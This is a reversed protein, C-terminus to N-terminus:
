RRIPARDICGPCGDSICVKIIVWGPFVSPNDDNGPNGPMNTVGTEEIYLIYEGTPVNAPVCITVATPSPPFFSGGPNGPIISVSPGLLISGNSTLFNAMHVDMNEVQLTHCQGRAFCIESTNALLFGGPDIGGPDISSASLSLKPPADNHGIFVQGKVLHASCFFAFLLLLSQQIHTRRIM